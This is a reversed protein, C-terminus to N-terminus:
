ATSPPPCGPRTVHTPTADPGLSPCVVGDAKLAGGVRVAEDLEAIGIRRLRGDVCHVPALQEFLYTGRGPSRPCRSLSCRPSQAATLPSPASQRSRVRCPVVSRATERGHVGRFAAVCPAASQAASGAPLPCQRLMSMRVDVPVSKIIPPDFPSYQVLKIRM